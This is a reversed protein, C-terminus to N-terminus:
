WHIIINFGYVSPNVHGGSWREITPKLFHKDCHDFVRKSTGTLWDPNCIALTHGKPMPPNPKIEDLPISFLIAYRRRSKSELKIRDWIQDAVFRFKADKIREKESADYLSAKSKSFSEPAAAERTIKRYAVEAEEVWVRAKTLDYLANTKSHNSM